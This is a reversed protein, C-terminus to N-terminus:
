RRIGGRYHANVCRSPRISRRHDSPMADRTDYVQQKLVLNALRCQESSLAEDSVGPFGGAGDQPRAASTRRECAVDPAHSRTSGQPHFHPQHALACRRSMRLPLSADMEWVRCSDPIKSGRGSHSSLRSAGSCSLREYSKCGAETVLPWDLRLRISSLQRTGTDALRGAASSGGRPNHHMSRPRDLFDRRRSGPGTM